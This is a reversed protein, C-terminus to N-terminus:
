MTIIMQKCNRNFLTQRYNLNKLFILSSKFLKQVFIKSPEFYIEMSNLALRFYSFGISLFKWKMLTSQTM